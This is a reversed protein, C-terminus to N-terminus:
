WGKVLPSFSRLKKVARNIIEVASEVEKKTTWKSLSLRISGHSEEYTGGIARIVHSPELKQSYCASGTNIILGELNAYMLIAEGEVYKFTINVNNCLRKDGLPGNLKTAEINLLNEILWDRLERMRRVEDISILETAKAFGVIGPLNPTGARFGREQEDGLIIPKLSIGERVYLAGVGKPGHILHASLSMLDVGMKKVDIPEKMFSQVADCHFLVNKEKCLEGIAKIDQITGIEQNAHQISVLRTNVIAKNLSEFDVFGEKDVNLYIAEFGEENSLAKVVDLVSRHEIKSTVIRKGKYQPSHMVGKIALNNSETGGSTFIIENPKANIKSAIVERAKEIAENAEDELIHGFEGRPVGYKEIMYERMVNVVIPDVMTTEANDLYIM